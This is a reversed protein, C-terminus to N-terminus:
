EKADELQRTLSRLRDYTGHLAVQSARAELLAKERQLQLAELERNRRELTLTRARFVVTFLGIIGIAAGLRFWWTMWLPPRVRIVLPVKTESWVGHASRGRVSM